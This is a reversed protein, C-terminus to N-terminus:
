GMRGGSMGKKNGSKDGLHPQGSKSGARGGNNNGKPPQAPHVGTKLRADSFGDAGGASPVSRTGSVQAPRKGMPGFDSQQSQKPGTHASGTSAASADRRLHNVGM